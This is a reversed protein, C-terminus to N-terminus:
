NCEWKRVVKKLAKSIHQKSISRNQNGRRSSMHFKYSKKRHMEKIDAM